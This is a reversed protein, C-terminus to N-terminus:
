EHHRILSQVFIRAVGPSSVPSRLACLRLGCLASGCLSSVQLTSVASVPSRLACECLAAAACSPEPPPLLPGATEPPPLPPRLTRVASPEPPPLRPLPSSRRLSRRFPSASAACLLSFTHSHSCLM